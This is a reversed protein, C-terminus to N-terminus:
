VEEEKKSKKQIIGLVFFQRKGTHTISAHIQRPNKMIKEANVRTANFKKIVNIKDNVKKM